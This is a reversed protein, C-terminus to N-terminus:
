KFYLLVKGNQKVEVGAEPIQKVIKDESSNEGQVEIEMGELKEKAEKLTLGVCDPMQINNIEEQEAKYVEM